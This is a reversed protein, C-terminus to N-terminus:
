PSFSVVSFENLVAMEQVSIQVSSRECLFRLDTVTNLKLVALPLVGSSKYHHTKDPKVNERRHTHFILGHSKDSPHERSVQLWSTRTSLTFNVEVKLLAAANERSSNTSRWWAARREECLVGSFAWRNSYTGIAEVFLFSVNTYQIQKQINCSEQLMTSHNGRVPHELPLLM